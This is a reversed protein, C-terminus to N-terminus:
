KEKSLVVRFGTASNKQEPKVANRFKRHLNESQYSMWSGGRTVGYGEVGFDDFVWEYVNGEIDYLGYENAEYKGGPSTYTYGDIYGKIVRKIAVGKEDARRGSDAFNGTHDEPPWETGWYYSKDNNIDRELPSGGDEEVLGCFLSWEVDTPLRYTHQESILLVGKEEQTLWECFSVAEERSVNVVPHKGTQKFSPSVVARNNTDKLYVEFAELTTEHTAVMLNEGFPTMMLGLSNKWEKEFIVSRDPKLVVTMKKEENPKLNVVKSITRYGEAEIELRRKGPKIRHLGIRGGEVSAAYEEGDIYFFFYGDVNLKLSLSAYPIREVICSFPLLGERKAWIPADVIKCNKNLLPKMRYDETLYGEKICEQALWDCYKQAEEKSILVVNRKKGEYIIYGNASKFEEGKIHAFFKRMVWKNILPRSIFREKVPRYTVGQVDTWMKGVEPPAFVPLQADIIIGGEKVEGGSLNNSYGKLRFEYQVYSGSEEQRGALPTTGLFEGKMTWVEAGSPSSIIKVAVKENAIISEKPLYNMGIFGALAFVALASMVLKGKGHKKLKLKKGSQIRSLADVLDPARKVKRRSERHECVDCILTNLLKWRKAKEAPYEYDPLDPFDLRDLGTAMEYIVKGLSYIDARRTGPGEPPVFGETGVFTRQGPMAVLGIDALKPAGEYFVINAPKIDRHALDQDHLYQLAQGMKVGLDICEDVDIPHSDAAKLDTRLTRPIYEVPHIEQGKEVDDALEMVYYYFQEEGKSRGVHLIPILGPHHRSIPEYHLIGEFEREFDKDNEFDERWVVKIARMVGTVARAMWVEGYSGGGIKRLMEHDPIHPANRIKERM